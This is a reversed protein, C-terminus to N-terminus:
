RLNTRVFNSHRIRKHDEAPFHLYSTLQARDTLLCRVAAPFRAAYQAAFADIRVQVEGLLTLGPRHGDATLAETDFIAWYAARIEDPADIPMKALV